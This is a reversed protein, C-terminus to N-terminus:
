RERIIGFHQRLRRPRGCADGTALVRGWLLRALIRIAVRRTVAFVIVIDDVRRRLRPQRAPAHRRRRGPPIAGRRSPQSESATRSRSLTLIRCGRHTAMPGQQRRPCSTASASSSARPSSASCRVCAACTATGARSRSSSRRFRAGSGNARRPTSRAAPLPRARATTARPTRRAARPTGPSPPPLSAREGRVVGAAARRRSRRSDQSERHVPAGGRPAHDDRHPAELTQGPLARSLPCFNIGVAGASSSSSGKRLTRERAVVMLSLSSSGRPGAFTVNRSRVGADSGSSRRRFETM